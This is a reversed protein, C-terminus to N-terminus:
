VEPTKQPDMLLDYAQNLLDSIKEAQQKDKKTKQNDPHHKSILDVYAKQIEKKSADGDLGLIEYAKEHNMKETGIFLSANKGLYKRRKSLTGSVLLVLLVMLLWGLAHFFRGTLILALLASVSVTWLTLRRLNKRDEHSATKSWQHLLAGLVILITGILIILPM